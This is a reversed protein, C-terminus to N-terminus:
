RNFSGSLVRFLSICEEGFKEQTFSIGEVRIVSFFGMRPDISYHNRNKACLHVATPIYLIARKLVEFSIRKPTYLHFELCANYLKYEVIYKYIERSRENM